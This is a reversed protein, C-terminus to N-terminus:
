DHVNYYIPKKVCMLQLYIHKINVKQTQKTKTTEPNEYPNDEFAANGYTNDVAVHKEPANEYIEGPILHWLLNGKYPM